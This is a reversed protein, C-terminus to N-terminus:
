AAYCNHANIQDKFRCGIRRFALHQDTALISRQLLLPANSLAGALLGAHAGDVGPDLILVLISLM